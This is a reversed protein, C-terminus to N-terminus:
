ENSLVVETAWVLVFRLRTPVRRFCVQERQTSTNDCVLALTASYLSGHYRFEGLTEASGAVTASSALLKPRVPLDSFTKAVEAVSTMHGAAAYQVGPRKGCLAKPPRGARALWGDPTVQIISLRLDSAFCHSSDMFKLNLRVAPRISDRGSCDAYEVDFDTQPTIRRSSQSSACSAHKETPKSINLM